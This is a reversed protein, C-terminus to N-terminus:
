VTIKAELKSVINDTTRVCDKETIKPKRFIKICNEIFNQKLINIYFIRLFTKM